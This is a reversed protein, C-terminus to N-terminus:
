PILLYQFLIIIMPYHDSGCLDDLTKWQMDLFIDPSCISLDIASSSGTTDAWHYLQQILFVRLQWRLGMFTAYHIPFYPDHIGLIYNKQGGICLYRYQAHAAARLANRHSVDHIMDRSRLLTLDEVKTSTYIVHGAISSLSRPWFTLPWPWLGLDCLWFRGLPLAAPNSRGKITM